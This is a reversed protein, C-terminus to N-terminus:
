ARSDSWRRGRAEATGDAGARGLEALFAISTEIGGFFSSLAFSEGPGHADDDPLAFGMLVVPVGLMRQLLGVAPITGGSRVLVPSAGIGARLARAAAAMAPHRADVVVPPAAALRRLAVRAAPQARRALHARLLREVERPEQGPVLRVNLLASAAPPIATRGAGPTRLATVVVAPRITAREHLTFGPEGWGAYAGAERVVARDSPGHRAARARERPDIPHVARYLGPVAIGGDPRHLSAVLEALAQAAGLIAGGVHGSHVARRGTAVRLELSLSGRLACTLAPRGPGLMRTDSVVAADCALAPRHAALFRGLGPSGLEEAGEFVCVVNVPLRGTSRLYAEVAKVHAFLQGKDDSAGRGHLRGDRVVPRFPPTRWARAPGPAVVDYHGYVLLTPQGPAGRWSGWVVDGDVRVDDLGLERLHAALWRACRGLDEARAPDGSVSPIAVFARLEELSRRRAGRAWALARRRPQPGAGEAGASARRRPPSATAPV